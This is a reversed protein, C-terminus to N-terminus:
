GIGKPYDQELEALFPYLNILCQFRNIRQICVLKDLAHTGLSEKDESEFQPFETVFNVSKKNVKKRKAKRQDKFANKKPDTKLYALHENKIKNIIQAVSSAIREHVFPCVISGFGPVISIRKMLEALTEEVINADSISFGLCRYLKYSRNVYKTIFERTLMSIRRLTEDRSAEHRNMSNNTKYKRKFKPLNKMIADIITECRELKFQRLAMQRRIQILKHEFDERAEQM